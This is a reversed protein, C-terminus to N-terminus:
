NYNVLTFKIATNTCDHRIGVNAAIIKVHLNNENSAFLISREALNKDINSNKSYSLSHAELFEESAYNENDALLRNRLLFYFQRGHRNKEAVCLRRSIKLRKITFNNALYKVATLM